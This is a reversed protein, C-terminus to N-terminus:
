PKAKLTISSLVNILPKYEREFAAIDAQLLAERDVSGIDLDYGANLSLLRFFERATRGNGERFPHLANVEGMYFALREIFKDRELGKLRNEEALASFITDSYSGIYRGLCFITDGKVLFEGKRVEGAWDYIDGFIHQHIKCLHNLGFRGNAFSEPITSLRLATIRREADFLQEADTIGLKNRLVKTGPYCYPDDPQYDYQCGM